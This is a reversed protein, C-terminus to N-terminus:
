GFKGPSFGTLMPAFLFGSTAWPEHLLQLAADDPALVITRLGVSRIFPLFNAPPFRKTDKAVERMEETFRASLVGVRQDNHCLEYEWGLERIQRGFIGTRCPEAVWSLQAARAAGADPFAAKGVLGSADIDGQRGVEVKVKDRSFRWVRGNDTSGAQSQGAEGIMLTTRARTAGVFSVRTEEEIGADDSLPSLYLRVNDAERGKSAHITGLVPGTDGFEPSCFIAPPSARGIVQRLRRIEIRGSEDGAAEMLLTWARNADPAGAAAGGTVRANWRADFESRDIRAETFDWLLAATWPLVRAPLGSMRLRHPVASAWSSRELVEARRRLLILTNESVGDLQLDRINGASDHALSVIEERIKQCRYAASGGRILVKRRVDAFIKRLRPCSTRHVRNLTAAAFGARKLANPLPEGGPIQGAEETFDYISQAEDAFVTVGCMPELREILALCWEARNGLIDQAEDIVLHELRALFDAADDDARIRDSASRINDDYSGTLKADPSFGSHIVWAHSDLTRIQVSAAAAEDNLSRAIRARFEAIATRTFSIVWIRGPEVGDQILRAIRACAVHTKGTGPGADVLVRATAPLFIVGEQSQDPGEAPLDQNILPAASRTEGLDPGDLNIANDNVLWLRRRYRVAPGNVTEHLPREIEEVVKGGKRVIVNVSPMEGGENEEDLPLM